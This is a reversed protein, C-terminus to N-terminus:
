LTIRDGLKKLNDQLESRIGGSPVLDDLSSVMRDKVIVVVSDGALLRDSGHPVFVANGRIIAAVLTHENLVLKKLPTDLMPHPGNVALEVIEVHGDLLQYVTQISSSRQAQELGRVFRTIHNTTIAKPSVISELGLNKVISGYNMRTVKAVTKTIGAGQALLCMMLNEEDRGTTAVFTDMDALNESRLFEEDTGDGEIVLVDPLAEALEHCRTRNLEIIKVKMGMELLMPALYYAVRGGGVIMVNKVKAPLNGVTKMFHWLSAPRGVVHLVDGAQLVTDGNPILIEAGRVVVGILISSNVRNAVQRLTLGPLPMDPTVRFEVIDVKGMAFREVKMAAPFRLIHAIENAAAQEPNVVLNLGLDKQLTVLEDAYEPDRIRAVTHEAGLKKGTLCCVMNMEDSSTAAILLDAQAVGARLLIKTSVGSGRICLVDLNDAAKRLADANKDIITIDHHERSLNEALSYGVKGDGIIIIKM